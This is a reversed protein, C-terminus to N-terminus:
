RALRAGGSAMPARLASGLAAEHATERAAEHAAGHATEHLRDACKCLADYFKETEAASWPIAASRQVYSSSTVGNGTMEEVPASM